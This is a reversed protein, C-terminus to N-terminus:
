LPSQTARKTFIRSAYFYSGCYANQRSSLANHRFTRPLRVNGTLHFVCFTFPSLSICPCLSVSSIIPCVSLPLLLPHIYLLSIADLRPRRHRKYLPTFLGRQTFPM